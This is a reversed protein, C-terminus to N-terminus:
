QQVSLFELMNKLVKEKNSADSLMEFLKQADTGEFKHARLKESLISM